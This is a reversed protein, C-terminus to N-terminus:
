CSPSKGTTNQFCKPAALMKTAEEKCEGCSVITINDKVLRETTHNNKCKFSRLKKM